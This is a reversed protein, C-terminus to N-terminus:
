RAGSSAPNNQNSQYVHYMWTFSVAAWALPIFGLLAWNGAVPATSLIVVGLVIRFLNFGIRARMWVPNRRSALYRSFVSPSANTQANM